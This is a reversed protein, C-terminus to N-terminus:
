HPYYIILHAQAIFLPGIILGVMGMVSIGGLIGIMMIVPDIGIRKGMLRSRFM